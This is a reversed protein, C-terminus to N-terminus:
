LLLYIKPYFKNMKMLALQGHYGIGLRGESLGM